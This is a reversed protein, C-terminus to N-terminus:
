ELPAADPVKPATSPATAAPASTPAPEDKWKAPSDQAPATEPKPAPPAAAPSTAAPATVPASQAAVTEPRPVPARKNAPVATVRLTPKVVRPPHPPVYVPPANSYTRPPGDFFEPDDYGPPVTAIRRGPYPGDMAAEVLLVDGYRADIVVNVDRGARDIARVRYTVDNRLPASLPDLGHSRLITVVEYAPLVRDSAAHPIRAARIDASIAPVTAVVM